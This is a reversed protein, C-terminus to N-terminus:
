LNWLGALWELLGASYLLLLILAIRAPFRLTWAWVKFLAAESEGFARKALEAPLIRSSFVCLLLGTLPTFCGATLFQIWEFFNRGFLRHEQLTSFSLLSGIGLFWIMVAATMAAFVRTYRQWDMHLRTVGELLTIGAALTSLFIMAYFAVLVLVGSMGVPLARPLVEFLLALGPVPTLKAQLVLTFVAFGIILSFATDIAITILALKKIPAGAPLYSGLAMMSGMGLAVTFFAQQIAELAGRWGFKALDPRLLYHLTADTSGHSLAYLFIFIALVLVAPVLRKAAHEIGDKFGHAVIITTFVMFITHWSLGREPDQALNLFLTRAEAENMGSALGAASRIAYAGSWGAIVSYFSLVLIAGVLSLLGIVAWERRANATQAIKIFGNVLDDRMWRGMMWETTLLPLSVLLLALLYAALFVLGGYESMLYPLRTVNGIGIVAGATVWLFSGNSSWYGYSSDRINM